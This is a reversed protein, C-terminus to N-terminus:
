NTSAVPTSAACAKRASEVDESSHKNELVMVKVGDKQLQELQKGKYAMKAQPYNIQQVLDFKAGPAIPVGILATWMLRRGITGKHKVILCQASPPSAVQAFNQQAIGTTALGIVVFLLMLKKM